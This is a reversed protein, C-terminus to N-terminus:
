MWSRQDSEIRYLLYNSMQTAKELPIYPFKIDGSASYLVITALGHRHQYWSQRVRVAQVKFLEMMKYQHGFVGSASICHDPHLHLKRKRFYLRSMYIAVPFYFWAIMLSWNQFIIALATLVLCPLVGTFTLFRARALPHIGHVEYAADAADPIIGQITRDM